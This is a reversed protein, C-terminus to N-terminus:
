VLGPVILDAVFAGLDDIITLGPWAPGSIEVDLEMGFQRDGRRVPQDVSGTQLDSRKRSCPVSFMRANNGSNSPVVRNDVAANASSVQLGAVSSGSTRIQM